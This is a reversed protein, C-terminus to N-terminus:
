FMCLQKSQMNAPMIRIIHLSVHTWLIYLSMVKVSLDRFYTLMDVLDRTMNEHHVPCCEVDPIFM